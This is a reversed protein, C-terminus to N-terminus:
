AAVGQYIGEFIERLKICVDLITDVCYDMPFINLDTYFLLGDNHVTARILEESSYNVDKIILSQGQLENANEQSLQVLAEQIQPYPMPVFLGYIEAYEVEPFGELIWDEASLYFENIKEELIENLSLVVSVTSMIFVSNGQECGMMYGFLRDTIDVLDGLRKKISLLARLNFLRQLIEDQMEESDLLETFYDM